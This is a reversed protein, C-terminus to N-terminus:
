IKENIMEKDEVIKLPCNPHRIEDYQSTFLRDPYSIPSMSCQTAPMEHNNLRCARCSKPTEIELIAKSM